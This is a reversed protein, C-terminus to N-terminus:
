NRATEKLYSASLTGKEQAVTMLTPYFQVFDYRRRRSGSPLFLLQAKRMLQRLRATRRFCLFGMQRFRAADKVHIELNM